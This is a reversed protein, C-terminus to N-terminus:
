RSKGSVMEEEDLGKNKIKKFKLLFRKIMMKKLEDLKFVKSKKPKALSEKLKNFDEYYINVNNTFDNMYFFRDRICDIAVVKILSNPLLSSVFDVKDSPVGIVKISDLSLKNKIGIEPTDSFVTTIGAKKADDVTTGIVVEFDFNSDSSGISSYFYAVDLVDTFSVFNRQKGGVRSWQEGTSVKIGQRESELGSNLGYKLISSIANGNTGHFLCVKQSILIDFTQPNTIFLYAMEIRRQAERFPNDNSSIGSNFCFDNYKGNFLIEELKSRDRDNHVLEFFLNCITQYNHCEDILRDLSYYM